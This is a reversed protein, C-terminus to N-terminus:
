RKQTILPFGVSPLPPLILGGEGRNLNPKLLILIESIYTNKNPCKQGTEPVSILVKKLTEGFSLFFLHNQNRM